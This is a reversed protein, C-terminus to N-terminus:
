TPAASSSNAETASINQYTSRSNMLRSQDGAPDDGPEAEAPIEGEEGEVRVGIDRPRQLPDFSIREGGGKSIQADSIGSSRGM